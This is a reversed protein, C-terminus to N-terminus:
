LVTAAGTFDEATFRSLGFPALPLSTTGEVLLERVLRGTIPGLAFGHGSFGAAILLGEVGPAWDVIHCADPTVDYLGAWCRVVKVHALAPLFALINRSARELWGADVQQSFTPPWDEGMGVHISGNRAQRWWAGSALHIGFPEMLAPVPETVFVHHRHPAIPLEIGLAAALGAPGAGVIAIDADM